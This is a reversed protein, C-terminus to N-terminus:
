NYSDKEPHDPKLVWILVYNADVFLATNGLIGTIADKIEKANTRSMCVVPSFCSAGTSEEKSQFYANCESQRYISNGTFVGNIVRWSM